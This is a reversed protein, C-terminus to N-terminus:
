SFFETMPIGRSICMVVLCVGGKVYAVSWGDDWLMEWLGAVDAIDALGTLEAIDAVEAVDAIISICNDWDEIDTIM